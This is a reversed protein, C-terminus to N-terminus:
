TMAGSGAHASLCQQHPPPAFFIIKWGTNEQLLKIPDTYSERSRTVRVDVAATGNGEARKATSFDTVQGLQSDLCLFVFTFAQEGTAVHNQQAELTFVQQAATGLLQYAATYERNKIDTYYQNTVGEPSHTYLTYLLVGLCACLVLGFVVGGSIGLVVWKKVSRKPPPPTLVYPPPPPPPIYGADPAYDPAYTPAVRQTQPLGAGASKALPETPAYSAGASSALYETPASATTGSALEVTIQTLGITIVDGAHLPLPEQPRLPQGNLLTGNTSGVDVLMYGVGDPWVEAHRGSTKSDDIVITNAPLRGLTVVDKGLECRGFPGLLAGSM